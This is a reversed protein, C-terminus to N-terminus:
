EEMNEMLAMLKRAVEELNGQKEAEDLVQELRARVTVDILRDTGRSADPAQVQPHPPEGLNRRARAMRLGERATDAWSDDRVTRLHQEVSADIPHYGALALVRSAEEDSMNLAETWRKLTERKPRSPSGSSRERGTEVLFVYSPSVGTVRTIEERTLNLAERRERLMRGMELLSEDPM